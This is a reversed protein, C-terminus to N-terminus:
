TSGGGASVERSIILRGDGAVGYAELLAGLRPWSGGLDFVGQVVSRDCGARVMASDAREGLLQGVADVIISKGAGTEGTLVNFGPSLRCVIHDIIAFDRVDLEVLM